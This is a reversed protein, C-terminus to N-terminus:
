SNSQIYRCLPATCSESLEGHIGLAHYLHRQLMVTNSITSLEFTSFSCKHSRHLGSNHPQFPDSGATAEMQNVTLPVQTTGSASLNSVAPPREQDQQQILSQTKKRRNRQRDEMVVEQITSM